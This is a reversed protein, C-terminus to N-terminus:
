NIGKTGANEKYIGKDQTENLKRIDKEESKVEV